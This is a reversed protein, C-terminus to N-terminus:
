FDAPACFNDCYILGKMVCELAIKYGYFCLHDNVLFVICQTVSDLSFSFLLKTKFISTWHQKKNENKKQQQKKRQIQKKKENNNSLVM